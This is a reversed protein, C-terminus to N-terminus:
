APIKFWIDGVSMTPQLSAVHIRTNHGTTTGVVKAASTSTGQLYIPNSTSNGLYTGTTANYGIYVKNVYYGFYNNNAYYGFYNNMATKYSTSNYNRGFYNTMTGSSNNYNRYGFNNTTSGNVSQYGFNNTMTTTTTSTNYGFYFTSGSSNLHLLHYTNNSESTIYSDNAIYTNAFFTGGSKPMYDSLNPISDTTAIDVGNIQPTTTFNLYEKFEFELPATEEFCYLLNYKESIISMNDQLDLVAVGSSVINGSEDTVLVESSIGTKADQKTDALDYASTAKDYATKVATPTAAIGGSTGSTTSVSDSLKLHGYNSSTGVGYTTGSSAHSTPAKGSLASNVVKNQVPNTSTSSLASDVTISTGGGSESALDIVDMLSECGAYPEFVFKSPDDMHLETAILYPVEFNVGVSITSGSLSLSSLFERSAESSLQLWDSWTNSNRCRIYIDNTLEPIAIQHVYDQSNVTSTCVILSYYGNDDPANTSTQDVTYLGPMTLTDFDSQSVQQWGAKNKLNNEILEKIRQNYLTLGDLDLFKTENM